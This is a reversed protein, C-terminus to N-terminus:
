DFKSGDCLSVDHLKGVIKENNAISHLLAIMGCANHITQKIFYVNPSINQELKTLRAEEEAKFQEYNNSCPFLLLVALVPQPVM